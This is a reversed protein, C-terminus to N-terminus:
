RQYATVIIESGGMMQQEAETYDVNDSCKNVLQTEGFGKGM